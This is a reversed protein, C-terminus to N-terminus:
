RLLQRFTILFTIIYIIIYGLFLSFSIKKKGILLNSLCEETDVILALHSTLLDEIEKKKKNIKIAEEELKQIEEKSM